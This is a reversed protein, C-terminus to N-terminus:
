MLRWLKSIPEAQVKEEIFARWTITLNNEKANSAELSDVLSGPNPLNLSIFHTLVESGNKEDLFGVARTKKKTKYNYINTDHMLLSNSADLSKFKINYKRSEWIDHLNFQASSKMHTFWTNMLTEVIDTLAKNDSYWTYEIADRNNYFKDLLISHLKKDVIDTYLNKSLIITKESKKELDYVDTKSISLDDVTNFFDQTKANIQITKKLQADSQLIRSNINNILEGIDSYKDFIPSFISVKEIYVFISAIVIIAIIYGLLTALQGNDFSNRILDVSDDSTVAQSVVILIVFASLVLKMLWHSSKLGKRTFNLLKSIQIMLYRIINIKKVLNNNAM